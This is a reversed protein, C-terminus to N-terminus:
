REGREQVFIVRLLFFPIPNIPLNGLLVNGLSFLPPPLCLLPSSLDVLEGVPLRLPRMLTDFRAMRHPSYNISHLLQTFDVVSTKRTISLEAYM